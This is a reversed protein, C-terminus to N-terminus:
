RHVEADIAARLRDAADDRTTYARLLFLKNDRLLRLLSGDDEALLSLRDDDTDFLWPAKLVPQAAEQGATGAILRKVLEVLEGHNPIASRFPVIEVPRVVDVVIEEPMLKARKAITDLNSPNGLVAKAHRYPEREEGDCLVRLEYALALPRRRFLREILMRTIEDEGDRLYGRLNEYFYSDDFHDFETESVNSRIEVHDAYIRGETALQLFIAKAMIEFARVTKDFSVQSYVYYRALVYHDLSAMAKRKDVALVRETSTPPFHKIMMNEILYESDIHGYPVGALASDRQVYDLRDCDYDSNLIAQYLSDSSSGEVIEAVENLLSTASRGGHQKFTTIIDSRNRIIYAGLHKDDAEHGKKISKVGVQQLPHPASAEVDEPNEVLGKATYSHAIMRYVIEICHSLPYQGVDHLLAALRIKERERSPLGLSDAVKGALHM